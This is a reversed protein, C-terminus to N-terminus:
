TGTRLAPSASRRPDDGRGGGGETAPSPNIVEVQLPRGRMVEELDRREIGAARQADQAAVSQQGASASTRAAVLSGLGMNNLLFDTVPNENAMLAGFMEPVYMAAAAEGLMGNSELITRAQNTFNAQRSRGENAIGETGTQAADRRAVMADTAMVSRLSATRMANGANADANVLERFTANDDGRTAEDRQRTLITNLAQAAETRGVTSKIAGIGAFERHAALAEFYGALDMAGAENTFDAMQVGGQIIRHTQGTRRDRRRGRVRGGTALAIDEQVQREDLSEILSRMQTAAAAPDAGGSRVVNAMAVFQRLRDESGMSGNRDVTTGFMGLIPAFESALQEPSIAGELGAQAVIDFIRGAELDQGLQQRTLGVFRSLTEMESGTRSAEDAIARLNERGWRFASFETQLGTLAQLLAGPEQGTAEAIAVIEDRVAALERRQVGADMGAFVEGGLRTLGLAFDQAGATREGLGQRGAQAGVADAVESMRSVFGSLVEQLSGIGVMSAGMMAASGLGGLMRDQSGLGGRSEDRQRRELERARRREARQQEQQTRRFEARKEAEAKKVDSVMERVARKRAAAAEREAKKVADSSAKAAQRDAQARDQAAKKAADVGERAAQRNAASQERAANKAAKTTGEVAQKVKSEGEASIRVKLERDAM